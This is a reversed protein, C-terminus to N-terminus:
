CTVHIISAVKRGEELLKNFAMIAKPTIEAILKLGKEEAVRRARERIIV